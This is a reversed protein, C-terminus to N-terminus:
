CWGYGPPLSFGTFKHVKWSNHSETQKKKPIMIIHFCTHKMAEKERSYKNGFFFGLM